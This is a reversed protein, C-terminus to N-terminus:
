VGVVLWARGVQGRRFFAKVNAEDNKLVKGCQEKAEQGEDLKLLVAALNLRLTNRVAASEAKEEDKYMHEENVIGLARTYVKQALKFKNEQGLFSPYLLAFLSYVLCWERLVHICACVCM